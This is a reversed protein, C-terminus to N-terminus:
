SHSVYIDFLVTSVSGWGAVLKVRCSWEVVRRPLAVGRWRAPVPEGQVNSSLLFDRIIPPSAHPFTLSPILILFEYQDKAATQSCPVSLIKTAPPPCTQPKRAAAARVLSRRLSRLCTREAARRAVAEPLAVCHQATIPTVATSLLTVNRDRKIMEPATTARCAGPCLAGERTDPQHDEM